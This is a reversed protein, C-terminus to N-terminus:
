INFMNSKVQYFKTYISYFLTYDGNDSVSSQGEFKIKTPNIKLLETATIIEATKKVISM